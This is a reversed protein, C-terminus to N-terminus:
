TKAKAGKEFYSFVDNGNRLFVIFIISYYKKTSTYEYKLGNLVFRPTGTSESVNYLLIVTKYHAIKINLSLLKFLRTIIKIQVFKFM